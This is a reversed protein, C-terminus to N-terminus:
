SDVRIEIDTQRCDAMRTIPNGRRKAIQVFAHGSKFQSKVLHQHSKKSSASKIASIQQPLPLVFLEKPCIKHKTDGLSWHWPADGQYWISSM